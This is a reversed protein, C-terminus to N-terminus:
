MALEVVLPAHDSPKDGRANLRRFDRDVFCSLVQLESSVLALDIRRGRDRPFSLQRYDWWTFGAGTPEAVRFADRLGTGILSGLRGREDATVHTAGVFAAPDWVDRDEPAVNLDGAVVLPGVQLLAAVRARAAALFDLKEVFMPHEPTRGNPVYVSVVRVGGVQAELWRAERPNPEGTLHTAVDTLEVDGPVLVAVGNWRGESREVSRYGAAALAAHPFAAAAVKTEQLCVVDPRYEALLDLVRPLRARISNVNWTVLRM